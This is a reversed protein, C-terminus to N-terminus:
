SGAGVLSAQSRMVAESTSSTIRYIETIRTGDAILSLATDFNEQRQAVAAEIQKVIGLYFFEGQEDFIVKAEALYKEIQGYEALAVSVQAAHLLIRARILNSEKYNKILEKFERLAVDLQGIQVQCLAYQQWAYARHKFSTSEKLNRFIDMAQLNDGQHRLQTATDMMQLQADQQAGQQATRSM